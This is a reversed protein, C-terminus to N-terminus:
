RMEGSYFVDLFVDVAQGTAGRRVTVPDDPKRMVAKPIGQMLVKVGAPGLSVRTVPYFKRTKVSWVEDGEVVRRWTTEVGDAPAPDSLSM